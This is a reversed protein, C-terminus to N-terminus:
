TAKMFCWQNTKQLHHKGVAHTQVPQHEEESTQIVVNFIGTKNYFL